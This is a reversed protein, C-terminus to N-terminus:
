SSSPSESPRGPDDPSSDAPSRAGASEPSAVVPGRLSVEIVSPGYWTRRTVILERRRLERVNASTTKVSYGARRSLEWLQLWDERSRRLIGIL